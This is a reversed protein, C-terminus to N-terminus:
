LLGGACLDANPSFEDRLNAGELMDQHVHLARREMEPAGMDFLSPEKARPKRRIVQVGM